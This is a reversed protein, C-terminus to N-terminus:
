EWVGKAKLIAECKQRPTATMPAHKSKIRFLENWVNQQEVDGLGDVVRQVADHSTLYAPFAARDDPNDICKDFYHMDGCEVLADFDYPENLHSKVIYGKFISEPQVIRWGDLRAMAEAIQKDNM